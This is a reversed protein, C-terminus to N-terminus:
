IKPLTYNTMTREAQNFWASTQEQFKAQSSYIKAFAPNEAATEKYVKAAATAFAKMLEPSFKRLQTGKSLLSALAKPNKADYESMMTVNAEHTAAIFAAQFAKPLKDWEKKSVFFHIVPGVEWWGPAYYYKAVKNFGLKEDDYPGVWEAADITGKELAPYIDAGPIQQPVAGLEAWVKGALGAIRIKLGKVDALTKVEKKYWGGMQVGTNGGIFSVIGFKAYFEDLLAQGGGYQVWANMQRFDLGFPVATGLAFTPDKGFSYYSCTHCAEVTGSTVADAAAPGGPVIEGPAFVQISFKGGTIEEVRKALVQAGGFITDLSKPFASTMRWKVQKTEDASASTAALVAAGALATTSSAKIFERRKM